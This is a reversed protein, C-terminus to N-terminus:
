SIVRIKMAKAKPHLMPQETTTDRKKPARCYRSMFVATVVEKIPQATSTARSIAAPSAPQSAKSARMLVGASIM